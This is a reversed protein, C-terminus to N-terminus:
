KHITNTTNKSCLSELDIKIIQTKMAIKVAEVLLKNLSEFHEPIIIKSFEFGRVHTPKTILILNKNDRRIENDIALKIAESTDKGVVGIKRSM